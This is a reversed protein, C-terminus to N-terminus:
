GLPTQVYKGNAVRSITAVNMGVIQAIDEMILPKLFAQGKEFFEKQEDVIASMVRIM